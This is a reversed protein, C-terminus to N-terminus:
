RVLKVGVSAVMSCISHSCNCSYIGGPLKGVTTAKLQVRSGTKVAYFSVNCIFPIQFGLLTNNQGMLHFVLMDEVNIISCLM